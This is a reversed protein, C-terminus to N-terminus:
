HWEYSEHYLDTTLGWCRRQFVKSRPFRRERMWYNVRWRVISLLNVFPFSLCAQHHVSSSSSFKSRQSILLVLCGL